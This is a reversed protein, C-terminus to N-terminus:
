QPITTFVSHLIHEPSYPGPPSPLAPSPLPTSYPYSSLKSKTRMTNFPDHISAPILPDPRVVVIQYLGNVSASARDLVRGHMVNVKKCPPMTHVPGTQPLV